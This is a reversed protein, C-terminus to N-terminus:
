EKSISPSSLSSGFKDPSLDASLSAFQEETLRRFNIIRRLLRELKVSPERLPATEWPNSIPALSVEDDKLIKLSRIGAGILLCGPVCFLVYLFLAMLYFDGPLWSDQQWYMIVKVTVDIFLVALPLNGILRRWGKVAQRAGELSSQEVMDLLCTLVKKQAPNSTETAGSLQNELWLKLSKSQGTPSAGSDPAQSLPTTPIEEFLIGCDESKRIADARIESLENLDQQKFGALLAQLPLIGRIYATIALLVSQALGMLSFGSTLMRSMSFTMWLQNFRAFVWLPPALFGGVQSPAQRWVQARVIQSLHEQLTKSSFVRRYIEQVRATLEQESAGLEGVLTQIPRISDDNSAYLLSRYVGIAYLSHLEETTRSSYIASRLRELQSYLHQPQKASVLFLSSDDSTFGLEAIRNKFDDQIQGLETPDCTDVQNLIFFWHKRSAWKKLEQTITFSSRKDPLAVYVVIDALEVAARAQQRNTLIASDLDPTDILALGSVNTNVYVPKIHEPLLVQSSEAATAAVYLRRTFSREAHSVPSAEPIKTLANFLSSKGAGTGGILAICAPRDAVQSKSKKLARELRQRFLSLGPLDSYDSVEKLLRRGQKISLDTHTELSYGSDSNLVPGNHDHNPM